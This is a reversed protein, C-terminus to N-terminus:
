LSDLVADTSAGTQVRALPTRLAAPPFSIPVILSFELIHTTELAYRLTPPLLVQVCTGVRELTAVKTRSAHPGEWAAQLAALKPEGAILMIKTVSLIVGWPSASLLLFVRGLEEERRSGAIIAEKRERALRGPSILTRPLVPFM